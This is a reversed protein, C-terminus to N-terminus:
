FKGTLEHFVHDFDSPLFNDPPICESTFVSIVDFSARPITTKLFELVASVDRDANAPRARTQHRM